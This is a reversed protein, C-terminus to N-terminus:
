MGFCVLLLTNVIDVEERSKYAVLALLFLYGFIYGFLDVFM